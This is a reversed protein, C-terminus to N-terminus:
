MDVRTITPIIRQYDVFSYNINDASLHSETHEIHWEQSNFAPFFATAAAVPYQIHTLYMSQALVMSQQFIHAGGIIYIIEDTHHAAIAATLNTYIEAGAISTMTNSIVINIRGPLIRGISQYTKRGMIIAHGLTLAKFRQLDAPLHWPLTNNIGIVNDANLAAILAINPM